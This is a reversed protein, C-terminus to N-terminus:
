KIFQRPFYFSALSSNGPSFQNWEDIKCNIKVIGCTPVNVIHSDTFLNAMETFGPNHGFLMATNWEDPVGFIVQYIADTDAHYLSSETNIKSKDLEFYKAFAKATTLARKATSSVIGDPKNEGNKVMYEPMLKVDRKGRDNLPRDFDPLALDMWSSKAHRVLFLTKM